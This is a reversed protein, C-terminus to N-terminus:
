MSGVERRSNPGVEGEELEGSATQDASTEMLQEGINCRAGGIVRHGFLCRGEVGSSMMEGV